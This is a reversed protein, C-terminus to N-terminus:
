LIFTVIIWIILIVVVVLGLKPLKSKSPTNPRADEFRAGGVVGTTPPACPQSEEFKKQNTYEHLIVMSGMAIYDLIEKANANFDFGEAILIEDSLVALSCNLDICLSYVEMDKSKAYKVINLIFDDEGSNSIALLSGGNSFYEEYSENPAIIFSQINLANLRGHFETALSLSDGDSCIIFDDWSIIDEILGDIVSKNLSINKGM